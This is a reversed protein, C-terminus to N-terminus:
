PRHSTFFEKWGLLNPRQSEDVQLAKTLFSSLGESSERGYYKLTKLKGQRISNLLDTDREGQYPFHGGSMVYFVTVALGWLDIMPSVTSERMAEPPTFHRGGMRQHTLTIRDAGEAIAAIGFDCLIATNDSERIMINSPSIDRHIIGRLQRGNEDRWEFCHLFDLAKLIDRVFKCVKAEDVQTEHFILDDLNYGEIYEMKIYLAEQKNCSGTDLVSAINPANHVKLQKLIEMERLFRSELSDFGGSSEETSTQVKWVKLAQWEGSQSNRIRWVESWRSEDLQRFEQFENVFGPEFILPFFGKKKMWYWDKVEKPDTGDPNPFLVRLTANGIKISDGLKLEKVMSIRKSEVFTGCKSDLDQLRWVRDKGFELIAHKRSVDAHRTPDFILDSKRSRGLLLRHKHFLHTIPRGNLGIFGLAITM